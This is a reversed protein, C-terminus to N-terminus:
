SKMLLPDGSPSMGGSIMLSRRCRHLATKVLHSRTGTRDAAVRQYIKSECGEFPIKGTAIEWLVIGFSYLGGAVGMVLVFRQALKLDKRQGLLEELTGLECYEMVISFQPPTVTEDICIGFIRLTNPSDFKKMASIENNFTRKVTGINRAQINNFVKIAM